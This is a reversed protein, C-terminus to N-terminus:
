RAGDKGAGKSATEEPHPPALVGVVADLTLGADRARAFAALVAPRLTQPSLSMAEAAACVVSDVLVRAPIPPPAPPLPPPAPAPLLPPATSEAPAPGTAPSPPPAPRPAWVDLQSALAADHPRVADVLKQMEWAPPISRGAEYRQVTRLSSGLVGALGLQNLSLAQRSLVLLYSLPTVM